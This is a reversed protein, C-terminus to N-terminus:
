FDFIRRFSSMDDLEDNIIIDTNGYKDEYSEYNVDDSAIAIMIFIFIWTFVIMVLSISNLIIGATKEGCKGKYTLGLILGIIPLPIVWFGLIMSIIGMVMSAIAPGKSPTIVSKTVNESVREKSKVESKSKSVKTGCEHCYTAGSELVTGCVSCHM